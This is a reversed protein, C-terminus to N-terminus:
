NLQGAQTENRARGSNTDGNGWRHAPPSSLLGCQASLTGLQGRFDQPCLLSCSLCLPCTRSRLPQLHFCHPKYPRTHSPRTPSPSPTVAPGPRQAHLFGSSPETCFPTTVQTKVSDGQSSHHVHSRQLSTQAQQTADTM